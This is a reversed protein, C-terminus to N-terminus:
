SGPPAGEPEAGREHRRVAWLGAAIGVAVGLAVFVFLNVLLNKVTDLGLRNTIGNYMRWLLWNVIGLCGVALGWGAGWALRRKVVGYLAGLLVGALPLGIALANMVLNTTREDILERMEM